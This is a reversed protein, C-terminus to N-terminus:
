ERALLSVVALTAAIMSDAKSAEVMFRLRSFGIEVSNPWRGEMVASTEVSKGANFSAIM